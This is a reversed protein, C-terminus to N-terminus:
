ILAQSSILPLYPTFECFEFIVYRNSSLKTRIRGVQVEVYEQWVGRVASWVTQDFHDYGKSLIDKVHPAVIVVTAYKGNEWGRRIYPSIRAYAPIVYVKYVGYAHAKVSIFTPHSTITAYYQNAQSLHTALHQDYLGKVQGSAKSVHPHLNKKYEKEAINKAKCVTPRAYKEYSSSALELGPYIYAENAHSIYPTFQDVYPSAYAEYYPQLHPYLATRIKSYAHCVSLSDETPEIPCRFLVTFLTYWVLIRSRSRTLM